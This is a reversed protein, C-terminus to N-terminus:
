RLYCSGKKGFGSITCVYPSRAATRTYRKKAPKNHATGSQVLRPSTNANSIIHPELKPDMEAASAGTVFSAAMVFSAAFALPLIKKLPSKASTEPTSTWDIM